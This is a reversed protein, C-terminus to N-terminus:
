PPFPHGGCLSPPSGGTGPPIGHSGRLRRRGIGGWVAFGVGAGRRDIGAGTAVEDPVGGGGPHGSRRVASSGADLKGALLAALGPHYKRRSGGSAPEGGSPLQRDQGAHRFIAAGSGGLPSRAQSVGHRRHGVGPRADARGDDTAGLTALGAGLALSKTRDVAAHGARKGRAFAGAMPEISKREGDLLLGRVYVSGWHRRERRGLPELLDALFQELRKRSREIESETM